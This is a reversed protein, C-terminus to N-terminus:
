SDRPPGFTTSSKRNNFVPMRPDSERMLNQDVAKMQSKNQERFYETRSEILEDPARCLMQGGMVINNKFRENEIYSVTIDPYDKPKCPEWGERIKASINTPDPQGNTAVRVWRHKWGPYKSADVSPLVDPRSWRKTRAVAERSEEDRELRNEAM